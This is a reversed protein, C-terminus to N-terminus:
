LTMRNVGDEAVAAQEAEGNLAKTRRGLVGAGLWGKM